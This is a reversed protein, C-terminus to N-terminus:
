RSTGNLASGSVCGKIIQLLSLTKVSSHHAYNFSLCPFIEGWFFNTSLTPQLVSSQSGKTGQCSGTVNLIFDLSIVTFQSSQCKSWAMEKVDDKWIGSASDEYKQSVFINEMKVDLVPHACSRERGEKVRVCGGQLLSVKFVLTIHLNSQDRRM